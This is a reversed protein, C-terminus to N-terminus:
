ALNSLKPHAKPNRRVILAVKGIKQILESGTQKVMEDIAQARMDREGIAIKVKILEHDDLARNLEDLVAESIGNGAVTVVPNLNHGISRMAKKQEASIAM